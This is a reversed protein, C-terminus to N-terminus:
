NLHVSINLKCHKADVSVHSVNGQRAIWKLCRWSFHAWRYLINRKLCRSVSGVCSRGQTNRKLLVLRIFVIVNLKVKKDSMGNETDKLIYFLFTGTQSHCLYTWGMITDQGDGVISDLFITFLSICKKERYLYDYIYKTWESLVCREMKKFCGALEYLKLLSTQCFTKM